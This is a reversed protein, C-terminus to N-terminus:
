DAAARRWALDDEMAHEMDYAARFGTLAALSETEMPARANSASEAALDDADLTWTFGPVRRALGECWEALSWTIGPALHLPKPAPKATDVLSALGAAVDASYIFDRKGADAIVAPEGALAHQTLRLLPSAIPRAGTAREWRGFVSSLRAVALPVDAEAAALLSMREGAFKAVGYISQPDPRISADLVPADFGAAGFVSGSSAVVLFCGPLAAAAAVANLPGLVNVAATRRALAPPVRGLPTLAALHVIARPRHRAVLAAYTEGDTADLREVAILRGPLAAFDRAARPPLAEIDAAVVADGRALLHEALALGVFGSAGVIMVSM